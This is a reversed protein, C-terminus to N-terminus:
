RVLRNLPKLGSDFALEIGKSRYVDAGHNVRLSVDDAGAWLRTQGLVSAVAESLLERRNYTPLIISVAPNRSSTQM